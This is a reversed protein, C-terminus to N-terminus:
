EHSDLGTLLVQFVGRGNRQRVDLGAVANKYAAFKGVISFGNNGRRYDGHLLRVDRLFLGALTFLPLPVAESPQHVADIGGGVRYVNSYRGLALFLTNGNM